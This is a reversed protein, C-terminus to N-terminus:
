KVEDLARTLEAIAIAVATKVTEDEEALQRENWVLLQLHIREIRALLGELQAELSELHAVATASDARKALPITREVLRQAKKSAIMLPEDFRQVLAKALADGSAGLARLQDIERTISHGVREGWRPTPRRTWLALFLAAALAGLGAGALAMVLNSASRRVFYGDHTLRSTYLIAPGLAAVQALPQAANHLAIQMAEAVPGPVAEFTCTPDRQELLLDEASTRPRCSGAFLAFALVLLPTIFPPKSPKV